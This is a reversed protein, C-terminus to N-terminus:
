WTPAFYTELKQPETETSISFLISVAADIVFFHYHFKLSLSVVSELIVEFSSVLILFLIISSIRRKLKTEPTNENLLLGIKLKISQNM